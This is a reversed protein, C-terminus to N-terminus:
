REGMGDYQSERKDLKIGYKVRACLHAATIVLAHTRVQTKINGGHDGARTAATCTATGAQIVGVYM